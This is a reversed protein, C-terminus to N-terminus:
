KMSTHLADRVREHVGGYLATLHSWLSSGSQVGEQTELADCVARTASQLATHERTKADLATQLVGSATTTDALDKELDARFLYSLPILALVVDL